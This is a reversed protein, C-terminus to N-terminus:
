SPRPEHDDCWACRHDVALGVVTIRHAVLRQDGRMPCPIGGREGADHLGMVGPQQALGPALETIQAIGLVRDLLGQQTRVPAQVPEARGPVPAKTGPERADHSVDADILAGPALRRCAQYGLDVMPLGRARIGTLKGRIGDRQGRYALGHRMERAVLALGEHQARDVVQGILGDGVLEADGLRVGASPDLPSAARQAARELPCRAGDREARQGAHQPCTSAPRGAPRPHGPTM